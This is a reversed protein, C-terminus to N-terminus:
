IKNEKESAGSDPSGKKRKAFGSEEGKSKLTKQYDEHKQDSKM